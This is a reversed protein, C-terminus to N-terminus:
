VHEVACGPLLTAASHPSRTNGYSSAWEAPMICAAATVTGSHKRTYVQKIQRAKDTSCKGCHAECADVRAFVAISSRCQVVFPGPTSHRCLIGLSPQSSVRASTTKGVRCNCCRVRVVLQLQLELLASSFSQPAALCKASQQQVPPAKCM